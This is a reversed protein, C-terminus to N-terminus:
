TWRDSERADGPHWAEAAQGWGDESALAGSQDLRVLEAVSAGSPTAQGPYKDYLHRRAGEPTEYSESPVDLGQNPYDSASPKSGPERASGSSYMVYGMRHGDSRELRM